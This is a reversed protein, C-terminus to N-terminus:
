KWLKVAIQLNKRAENIKKAYTLSYSHSREYKGSKLGEHYEKANELKYEYFEISEPMSLNIDNAKKGL